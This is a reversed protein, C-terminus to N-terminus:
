ASQNQKDNIKEKTIDNQNKKIPSYFIRRHNIDRLNTGATYKIYGIQNPVYIGGYDKNIQLRIDGQQKQLRQKQFKQYQINKQFVYDNFPLYGCLLGYLIVGLSWIDISPQIHKIKNQLVEPSMYRLSGINIKQHNTNGMGSIGFDIIKICKDDISKLLINELKLDRHVLNESHCYRIGEVIQSFFERAEIECLRGKKQVYELLEGGSLHEMIYVVQMTKLTYCNYITVINKHKLSKLLEAERFVMDIDSANSILNTDVIKIAVKQKTFRHEGLIVKGFGGQGLVKLKKYESFSKSSNYEQGDSALLMIGDQLFQLDQEYIEIGENTYLRLFKKIYFNLGRRLKEQIDLFKSGKKLLIKCHKNESIETDDNLFIRIIKDKEQKLEKQIYIM